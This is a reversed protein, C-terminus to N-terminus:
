SHAETLRRLIAEEPQRAVLLVLIALLVAVAALPWQGIVALYTAAAWLFAELLEAITAALGAGRRRRFDRRDGPTQLWINIWGASVAALASGAAAIAATQPSRLALLSLLGAFLVALPILGAALKARWIMGPRSPSMALLEPAEEASITIWSLSASVQGAMFVLGAAAGATIPDHTGGAARVMVFVLPPIYLARLLVQSLMAPDRWLLRTEKALMASFAGSRFHADRAPLRARAAAEAGKAAAADDAFRRGVLLIAGLFIAGGISLLGIVPAPDGLVAGAPWVAVFPLRREGSWVDGFLRMWFGGARQNGVINQLQSLIFFSAGIVAALLQAVTRTRRPGITTLLGLAIVLGLGTAAMSVAALVLYAAAWRPAAIITPILLPALIVAFIMAASIAMSVARVGLVKTPSIPASLLLDLDGRAYFAKVSALLTQSLMLTFLGAFIADVIVAFPPSPAQIRPLLEALARGPWLLVFVLFAATIILQPLNRLRGDARRGFWGRWTLRLEHGLLGLTSGSRIM